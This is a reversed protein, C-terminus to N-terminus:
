ADLADKFVDFEANVRMSEGRVRRSAEMLRQRRQRAVMQANLTALARRMYEARPIGLERARRDAEKVLTDPLRLSITIM